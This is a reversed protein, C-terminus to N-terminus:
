ADSETVTIAVDLAYDDPPIFDGCTNITPDANIGIGYTTMGPAEEMAVTEVGDNALDLPTTDGDPGDPDFSIFGGLSCDTGAFNAQQSTDIEFTDWDLKIDYPVNATVKFTAQGDQGANTNAADDSGGELNPDELTSGEIDSVEVFAGVVVILTAKDGYDTAWAGTALVAFVSASVLITKM